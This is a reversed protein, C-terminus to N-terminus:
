SKSPLGSAIKKDVKNSLTGRPQFGVLALKILAEPGSITNRGVPVAHYYGPLFHRPFRGGLSGVRNRSDSRERCSASASM